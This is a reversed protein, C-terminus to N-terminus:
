ANIEIQELIIIKGVTCGVENMLRSRILGEEAMKAMQDRYPVSVVTEGSGGDMSEYAVRYVITEPGEESKAGLSDFSFPDADLDRYALVSEIYALAEKWGISNAGDTIYHPPDFRKKQLHWFLRKPDIPERSFDERWEKRSNYERRAHEEASPADVTTDNDSMPSLINQTLISRSPGALRGPAGGGRFLDSM